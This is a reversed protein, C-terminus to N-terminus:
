EDGTTEPDGPQVIPGRAGGCCSDELKCHACLVEGCGACRYAKELPDTAGVFVPDTCNTCQLTPM